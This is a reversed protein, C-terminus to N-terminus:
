YVTSGKKIGHYSGILRKLENSMSHQIKQPIVEFHNEELSMERLFSAAFCGLIGIRPHSSINSGSKHWLHGNWFILSGKPAELNLLKFNSDSYRPPVKALKHSKPFIITAGNNKTYDHILFNVNARIIWKPIPEPM